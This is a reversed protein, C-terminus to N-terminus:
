QEPSLIRLCASAVDSLMGDVDFDWLNRSRREFEDKIKGGDSGTAPYRWSYIDGMDRSSAVLWQSRELRVQSYAQFAAKVAEARDLPSPVRHHKLAVGLATALALADEVGMCAGAGHFPSSAHAADGVICVRGRAYTPAPHDATDFIAWKTIQEPFLDVLGQISPSFNGLRSSVEDRRAPATM